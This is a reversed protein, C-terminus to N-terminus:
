TATAIEIVAGAADGIAVEVTANVDGGVTASSVGIGGTADVTIGVESDVVNEIAVEVAIGIAVGAASCRQM